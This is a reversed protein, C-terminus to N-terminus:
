LWESFDNADETIAPAEVAVEVFTEVPTSETTEATAVVEIEQDESLLEAQIEAELASQEAKLNYHVLFQENKKLKNMVERQDSLAVIAKKFTAYSSGRLAGNESSFQSLFVSIEESLQRLNSHIFSLEHLKENLAILKEHTRSHVRFDSASQKTEEMTKLGKLIGQCGQAIARIMSAMVSENIAILCNKQAQAFEPDFNEESLSIVQCTPIFSLKEAVEGWSPQLSKVVTLLNNLDESGIQKELPLKTNRVLVEGEIEQLRLSLCADFVLEDEEVYKDWSSKLGNLISLTDAAKARTHFFGLETKAGWEALAADAERKLDGYKKTFEKPLVSQKLVKKSFDPLKNVEVGLKSFDIDRNGISHGAASLNIMTGSTETAKPAYTFNSM